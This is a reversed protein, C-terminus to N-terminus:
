SGTPLRLIECSTSLYSRHIDILPRSCRLLYCLAQIKAAPLCTGPISEHAAQLCQLKTLLPRIIARRNTLLSYSPAYQQQQYRGGPAAEIAVLISCLMAVVTIILM